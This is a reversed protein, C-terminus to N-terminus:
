VDAIQSRLNRLENIMTRHSVKPARIENDTKQDTADQSSRVPAPPTRSRLPSYNAEPEAGAAGDILSPDRKMTVSALNVLSHNM